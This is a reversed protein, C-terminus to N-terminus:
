VVHTGEVAREEREATRENLFSLASELHHIAMANSECNFQSKQYFELRLRVADIVTEAFAGNPERRKDGRGLPGNQWSITFGRGESIGGAPNGQEDTWQDEFVASLM